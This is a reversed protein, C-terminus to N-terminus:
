GHNSLDSVPVLCAKIAREQEDRSRSRSRKTPGSCRQLLGAATFCSPRGTTLNTALLWLQPRGDAGLDKLQKETFLEREYYQELVRTSARHVRRLIRGRLLISGGSVANIHRVRSLLGADFLLRVVGLHFLM